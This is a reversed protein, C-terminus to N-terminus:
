VIAPTTPISGDGLTKAGVWTAGLGQGDEERDVLKGYNGASPDEGLEEQSGRQGEM